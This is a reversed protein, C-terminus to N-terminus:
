RRCSTVLEDSPRRREGTCPPVRDLLKKASSELGECCGDEEAAVAAKSMASAQQQVVPPSQQLPQPPLHEHQHGHGNM